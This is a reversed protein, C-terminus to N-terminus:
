VKNEIPNARAEASDEVEVGEGVRTIGLIESRKLAVGMVEEEMAADCVTREQVLNEGGMPWGSDDVERGFRVNVARNVAGAVEDL